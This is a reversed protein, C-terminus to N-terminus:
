NLSKIETIIAKLRAYNSHLADNRRRLALEAKAFFNDKEEMNDFSFVYSWNNGDPKSVLQVGENEMEIEFQKDRGRKRDDQLLLEVNVTRTQNM